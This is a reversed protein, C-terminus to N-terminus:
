DGVNHRYCSFDFGSCSNEGVAQKEDANEEVEAVVDATQRFMLCEAKKVFFLHYGVQIKEWM